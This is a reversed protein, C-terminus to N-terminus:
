LAGRRPDRLQVDLREGYGGLWLLLELGRSCLWFWAVFSVEEM